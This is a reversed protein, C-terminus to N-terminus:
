NYIVEGWEEFYNARPIFNYNIKFYPRGNRNKLGVLTIERTGKSKEQALTDRSITESDDKDTIIKYQLGLVVDATYEIGGSEKFSTFDVKENYNMRNFSCIVFVPIDFDRSLKKLETVNRDIQQKDSLRDNTPTLIQLYDIFVNPSYGTTEIYNKVYDRITNVSTKFNGEEIIINKAITSYEKISDLTLKSQTQERMIEVSSKYELPDIDFSKRSLSKSVLEFKGQELSFYIVKEGAEAMQDAIQHMFTTKGLSSIAGLVYLQPFVGNIAKDLEKFGTTKERYKGAKSIDTLFTNSIYNAVTRQEYDIIPTEAETTEKMVEVDKINQKIDRLFEGKDSAIYWENIDRKKEGEPKPIELVKYKIKLKTLESIIKQTNKQGAEDNDLSLIYTYTSATQMNDKIKNIFLNKYQEVSNISIAKVGAQELSLADFVGECIYITENEKAPQKIYDINFATMKGKSNLYKYSNSSGIARGIYAVPINNEMIPIIIRDNQMPDKGIFINYKRITEETIGRNVLVKIAQQIHEETKYKSIYEKVQTKQEDSVVKNSVDPKFSTINDQKNQEYTEGALTYLEQISEKTDKSDVAMILDIISGSNNSSFCTYSNTDEYLRFCNKHGCVPCPNAEYLGSGVRRLNYGKGQLYNGIKVKQKLEELNAM